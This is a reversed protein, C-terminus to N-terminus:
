SAAFNAIAGAVSVGAAQLRGACAALEGPATSREDYVLYVADLRASRVLAVLRSIQQEEAPGADVLVLDVIDALMSFLVPARFNSALEDLEVGEPSLPVFVLHDDLSAISVDALRERGSLVAQWGVSQAIGLRAALAAHDFNADLLGWSAGKVRALRALCLGVTTTGAAPSAGVLAIRRQGRRAGDMLQTAFADLAAAATEGLEAIEAPWLFQDVELAPQLRDEMRPALTFSSLPGSRPSAASAAAIRPPATAALGAMGMPGAPPVAGVSAMTLSLIDPSLVKSSPPKPALSKALPPKPPPSEPMRSELIQSEPSPSDAPAAKTAPAEIAPGATSAEDAFVPHPQRQWIWDPTTALDSVSVIVREGRGAREGMAEARSAGAQEGNEMSPRRSRRAVTKAHPGAAHPLAAVHPGDVRYTPAGRGLTVEKPSSVRPEAAVDALTGRVLRRSTYAKIFARDVATM